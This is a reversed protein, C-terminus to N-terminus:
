SVNVKGGNRVFVISKEVVPKGYIQELAKAYVGLQPAYQSARENMEAKTKVFDTKFDVIHIGDEAVYHLDVVGQVVVKDTADTGEYVENAPALITFAYERRIGTAEALERGTDSAFLKALPNVLISKRMEDTIFKATYLRTIEAQIGDKGNERCYKYNAYQLFTHTASGQEAATSKREEKVFKPREVVIPEDSKVMDTAVAKSAARTASMYQYTFALNKEIEDTDLEDYHAAGIDASSTTDDDDDLVLEKSADIEAMTMTKACIDGSSMCRIKWPYESPMKMETVGVIASSEERTLATMLVWLGPNTVGQTMYIPMVSESINGLKDLTTGLKDCYTMVLKQKARTMAVYLVRMAESKAEAATKMAIASRAITPYRHVPVGPSSTVVQVGAGLNKDLLASDRLDSMNFKRSLDSLFVIPFELGKSAHVSMITVAEKATSCSAQPLEADEEILAEMHCIFNFLGRAGGAEYAAIMEGFRRINAIRQDGNEMSGFVDDADTLELIRTFLRSLKTYTSLSRLTTLNDVFQQARANEKAFAELAEYFNKADRKAMKINALDDATFGCLPSALVSVLPIDQTPNDVVQLYCFLTAVETTDMISGNRASKASIGRKNLAKIFHAAPHRPAYMLIAIDNATVKRTTGTTEDFMTGTEILEEIRSAVYEAEVDSKAVSELVDETDSPVEIGGLDIVNLEVPDSPGDPYEDKGPILSEDPTYEIGGVTPSMCARMVANAADLIEPRSRFNKTLRIKRPEGDKVETYDKYALYHGLFVEPEALRFRYISQKVDGVMFLNSGTSIANFITEQVGNTDQYEDVMIEIFRTSVSKAIDTRKGTESDTLIKICLHELDAFDLMNYLEKKATYRNAFDAVLEFMGNVSAETMRLDELVEESMGYMVKTKDDISKKYRKRMDTVLEKSSESYGEAKRITKLREWPTSKQFVMQDWTEAKLMTELKTKDDVIAPLYCEALKVEDKCIAIAKDLVPLQAALSAKVSEMIYAGWPTEAADAVGSMDMAKICQATWKEPWPHSQITDYVSYLIAPVASDDRGTGLEDIFAKVNPRTDITKYLGELMEEMAAARLVRTEQEDGVRFDASIGAEAAHSRLLDACFAHVTSIKAGYALHMQTRLHADNPDDALRKSMEATIKTRLEAAAAKTYTIVLFDTINKKDNCIRDMIRDVLVKTKGTGAAASVLLNGGRNNVVATQQDTLTIKTKETAM